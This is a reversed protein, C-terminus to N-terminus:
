GLGWHWLLAGAGVLLTLSLPSVGPLAKRRLLVVALLLGMVGVTAELSVGDLYRRAVLPIALAGAFAAAGEALVSVRPLPSEALAHGVKVGHEWGLSLLWPALALRVANHVLVFGLVPWPGGGLLVLALAASVLAPVLGSWFLRDGLAGLPGSLARRLREVQAPTAGDKEARVEAGVAAPALYPNANFFGAARALAERFREPEAAFQARLLPETAHGMGIGQMREYHWTAQLGLLRFLARARGTLHAV